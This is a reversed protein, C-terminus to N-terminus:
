KNKEKTEVGPPEESGEDKKAEKKLEKIENLIEKNTEMQATMLQMFQETSIAM